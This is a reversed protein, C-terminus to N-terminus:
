ELMMPIHGCAMRPLASFASLQTLVDTGITIGTISGKQATNEKEEATATKLWFADRILDHVGSKAALVTPISDELVPTKSILM